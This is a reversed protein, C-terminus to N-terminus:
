PRLAYSLSMLEARLSHRLKGTGEAALQDVLSHARALVEAATLQERKSVTEGQTRLAERRRDMKAESNFYERRLKGAILAADRTMLEPHSEQM